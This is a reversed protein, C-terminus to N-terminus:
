LKRWTYDRHYERKGTICASINTQNFGKKEANRQSKFVYGVDGKNMPEAIIAMRGWNHLGNDMAHHLNQRSTCWELNDLSNNEKNGDIHNVQPLNDPNPIFAEALLRHVSCHKNYLKYTPYGDYNNYQNLFRNRKSSWLRGDEYLKYGGDLHLIKM